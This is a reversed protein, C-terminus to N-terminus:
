DYSIKLDHWYAHEWEWNNAVNELRIAIRKGAYLTLDVKKERWGSGKPGIMEKLTEKGDLHLRLEFDGQQHCSVWFSLTTKKGSPVEIERELRAPTSRDIPHTMQVGNRDGYSDLLGTQAPDGNSTIKWEAWM